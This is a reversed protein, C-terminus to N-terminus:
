PTEYAHGSCPPTKQNYTKKYYMEAGNEETLCGDENVNIQGYEFAEIIQEKEKAMCEKKFVEWHVSDPSISRMLEIRALAIEMATKM